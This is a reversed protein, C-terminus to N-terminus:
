RTVAFNSIGREMLMAMLELEFRLVALQELLKRTAKIQKDFPNIM